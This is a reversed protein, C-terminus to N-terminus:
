RVIKERKPIASDSVSAALGQAARRRGPCPQSHRCQIVKRDRSEMVWVGKVGWGVKGISLPSTPNKQSSRMIGKKTMCLISGMDWWFREPEVAPFGGAIGDGLESGVQVGGFDEKAAM